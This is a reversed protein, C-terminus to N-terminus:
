TTYRTLLAVWAAWPWEPAFPQNARRRLDRILDIGRSVARGMADKCAVCRARLEEDTMEKEDRAIVEMAARFAGINSYVFVVNESLDVGLLGLKAVADEYVL